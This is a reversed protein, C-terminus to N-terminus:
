VNAFERRMREYRGLEKSTVSPSMGALADRFDNLSVTVTLLSHVGGKVKVLEGSEVYLCQSGCKHCTGARLYNPPGSCVDEDVTDVSCACDEEEQSPPQQSQSKYEGILLQLERVATAARAPALTKAILDLEAAQRKVAKIHAARCAGAIDAGTFTAPVLEAMQRLSDKMEDSLTMHATIAELLPLKDDPVGLYVQRDLRGPRLLARDLLDPRNSAAIVIVDPPLNDIEALLSAVVRDMVGGSDSGRGRHPALSDVEDFFVVSPRSELARQFVDRVNKESEGIYMSLLEPGKVSLFSARSETAVAKALLTKGTGPPGFLLIGTRLKQRRTSGQKRAEMSSLLHRLERKAEDMGGVDDWHVKVGSMVTAASGSQRQQFEKLAKRAAAEESGEPLLTLMTLANLVDGISLGATGEKILRPNLPLSLQTARLMREIVEERMADDARVLNVHSEFLDVVERDLDDVNTATAALLVGYDLLKDRVAKLSGSIVRGTRNVEEQSAEAATPFLETINRLLVVAGPTKGSQASSGKVLSEVIPFIDAVTNAEVGCTIVGVSLGMCNSAERICCIKGSGRDGTVLVMNGVSLAAIIERSIAALQPLMGLSRPTATFFAPLLPISGWCKDLGRPESTRMIVETDRSSMYFSLGDTAASQGNELTASTVRFYIMDVFATGYVPHARARQLRRHPSFWDRPAAESASTDFLDYADEERLSTVDVGEMGCLGRRVGWAPVGFLEDVKMLRPVKLFEGLARSQLSRDRQGLPGFAVEVMQVSKAKLPPKTSPRCSVKSRGVTLHLATLITPPLHLAMSAEPAAFCAREVEGPLSQPFPLLRVVRVPLMLEEQQQSWGKMWRSSPGEQSSSSSPPVKSLYGYISSKDPDTAGAKRCLIEFLTRNVFGESLTDRPLLHTSDAPLPVPQLLRYAKLQMKSGEAPM